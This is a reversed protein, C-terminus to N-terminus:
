FEKKRRSAIWEALERQLNARLPAIARVLRGEAGLIQDALTVLLVNPVAQPRLKLVYELAERERTNGLAQSALAFAAAPSRSSGAYCHVLLTVPKGDGAAKLCHGGFKLIREVHDRNPAIGSMTYAERESDMDHFHFQEHTGRFWRPTAKPTGPDELSLLHTISDGAFGDIENKGCVFLRYPLPTMSARGFQSVMRGLALTAVCRWRPEITFEKTGDFLDEARSTPRSEIRQPTQSHKGKGCHLAVGCM